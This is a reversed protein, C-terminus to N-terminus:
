DQQPGFNDWTSVHTHTHTDEGVSCWCACGTFMYVGDIFLIQDSM